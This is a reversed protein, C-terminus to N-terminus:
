DKGKATQKAEKKRQKSLTKLAKKDSIGADPVSPASLREAEQAPAAVERVSASPEMVGKGENKKARATRIRSLVAQAMMKGFQGIFGAVLVLLTWKLVSWAGLESLLDSM